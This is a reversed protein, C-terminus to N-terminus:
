QTKPIYIIVNHEPPGQQLVKEVDSIAEQGNTHEKKSIALVQGNEVAKAIIKGRPTKSVEYTIM